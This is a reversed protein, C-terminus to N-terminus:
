GLQSQSSCSCQSQNANAMNGSTKTEFLLSCAASAMVNELCLHPHLIFLYIDENSNYLYRSYILSLEFFLRNSVTM